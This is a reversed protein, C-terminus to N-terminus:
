SKKKTRKGSRISASKAYKDAEKKVADCFMKYGKDGTCMGPRIEWM